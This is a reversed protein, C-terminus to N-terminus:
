KGLSGLMRTFARVGDAETLGPRSGKAWSAGLEWTRTSITSAAARRACSEEGHMGAFMVAEHVTDRVMKARRCECLGGREPHVVSRCSWCRTGNLYGHMEATEQSAVRVAYSVPAKVNRVRGAREAAKVREERHKKRNDCWYCRLMDHLECAELM